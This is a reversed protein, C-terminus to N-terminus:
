KLRNIRGLLSRLEKRELFYFAGLYASSALCVVVLSPVGITILAYRLCLVPIALMLLLVLYGGMKRVAILGLGGGGLFRCSNRLIFIATALNVAVSAVAVGFIGSLRCAVLCFVGNAALSLVAIGMVTRTKGGATLVLTSSFFTTAYTILYIAFIPVGSAYKEGYLLAVCEPSVAALCAAFPWVLLYGVQLYDSYVSRAGGYERSAISRTLIPMLVTMFSASIFDLPLQASCNAFIAYDETSELAGVILNSMQRSCASVFVSVALPLSFHLIARIASTDFDGLRPRGVDRVYIFLFWVVNLADILLYAFFIVALSKYVFGVFCVVVIKVASVILNRIAFMKSKGLSVIVVQLTALANSLLPRLALFLALSTVAENGFYAGIQEKFVVIAVAAIGGVAIEIYLINSIYRRGFEPRNFFYNSADTLGLVTLSTILSVVLNGQSYTGYEALTLTRSLIMTCVIGSITTMVKVASLILSDVAAGSFRNKVRAM